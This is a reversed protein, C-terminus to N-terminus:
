NRYMLPWSSFDVRSTQSTQPYVPVLETVKKKDKIKPTEMFGAREKAGAKSVPQQDTLLCSTAGNAAGEL